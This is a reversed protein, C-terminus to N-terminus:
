SRYDAISRVSFTIINANEGIREWSWENPDLRYKFINDDQPFQAYFFDGQLDHFFDDYVQAELDTLPRTRLDYKRFGSRIGDPTVQEYGDGLRFRRLRRGRVRTTGYEFIQDADTGTFLTPQAM